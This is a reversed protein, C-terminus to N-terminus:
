AGCPSDINLSLAIERDRLGVFEKVLIASPTFPEQDTMDAHIQVVGLAFELNGCSATHLATVNEIGHDQSVTADPVFRGDRVWGFWRGKGTLNVDCWLFLDKSSDGTSM